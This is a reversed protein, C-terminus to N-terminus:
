RAQKARRLFDELMKESAAKETCVVIEIQEGIGNQRLIDFTKKEGYEKHNACYVLKSIKAYVMAKGCMLCPEINSYVTCGTLLASKLKSCAKSIARIEAHAAADKLLVVRSSAKAVVRGKSVVVCGAPYDGKRFAKAAEKEAMAIFHSDRENFGM